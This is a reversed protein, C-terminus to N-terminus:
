WTGTLVSAEEYSRPMRRRWGGGFRQSSHKQRLKPRDPLPGREVFQFPGLVRVAIQGGGNPPEKPDDCSAVIDSDAHTREFQSSVGLAVSGQVAALGFVRPEIAHAFARLTRHLPLRWDGSLL